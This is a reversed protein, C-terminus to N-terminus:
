APCNPYNGPRNPLNCCSNNANNADCATPEPLKGSDPLVVYDKCICFKQCCFPGVTLAVGCTFGTACPSEPVKDCDDDSECTSTCMGKTASLPRFNEPLEKGQEVPIKLCTRSPCDLSPSGVVAQNLGPDLGLDCIRGVPNDCGVVAAAILGLMWMRPSRLINM